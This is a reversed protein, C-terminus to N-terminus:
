HDPSWRSRCPSGCEKGVRRRGIKEFGEKAGEIFCEYVPVRKRAGVLLFAMIISFLTLNGMLSSMAGIAASSLTALLAMFGGLLLALGGLWALVVPYHLRLRQMFAVALLGALSTASTALLIPVCVLMPDPAGQQMRYM